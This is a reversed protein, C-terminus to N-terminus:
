QCWGCSVGSTLSARMPFWRATPKTVSKSPNIFWIRDVAGWNGEHCFM